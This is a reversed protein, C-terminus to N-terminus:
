VSDVMTSNERLILVRHTNNLETFMQGTERHMEETWYSRMDDRALSPYSLDESDLGADMINDMEESLWMIINAPVYAKKGAKYNGDAIVQNFVRVELDSERDFYNKDQVLIFTPYWNIYSTLQPHCYRARPRGPDPSPIFIDVHGMRRFSLHLLGVRDQERIMNKLTGAHQKLYWESIKYPNSQYENKSEESELTIVLLTYDEESIQPITTRM